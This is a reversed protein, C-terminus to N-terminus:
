HLQPAIEAILADLRDANRRCEGFADGLLSGLSADGQAGSAVPAGPQGQAAPLPNSAATTVAKALLRRALDRDRTVGALETERDNLKELIKVNLADAMDGEAKQRALAADAAKTEALDRAEVYARHSVMDESHRHRDIWFAGSVLFALIALYPALKVWIM